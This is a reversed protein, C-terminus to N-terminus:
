APSPYVFVFTSPEDIVRVECVADKLGSAAVLREWVAEITRVGPYEDRTFFRGDYQQIVSKMKSHEAKDVGTQWLQLLRLQRRGTIPVREIGFFWFVWITTVCM